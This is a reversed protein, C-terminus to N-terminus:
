VGRGRRQEQHLPPNRLLRLRTASATGGVTANEDQVPVEHALHDARESRGEVENCESIESREAGTSVGVAGTGMRAASRSRERSREVSVRRPRKSYGDGRSGASGEGDKRRRGRVEPSFSSLRRRANRERRVDIESGSASSSRGRRKGKEGGSSKEQRRPSRSRSRGNTSITSVSDTSESRRRGGERKREVDKKALIDDAVGKKRVLDTPVEITLAPALRPNLLQQTRSPRPKYPRDQARAKCEYSYHGRQLCKQCLTTPSAKSPGPRRFM